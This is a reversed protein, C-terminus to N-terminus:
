IFTLTKKYKLACKAFMLSSLTEKMSHRRLGIVDRGCNFTREVSVSAGPISLVNKVVVSLNPFQM